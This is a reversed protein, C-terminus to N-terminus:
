KVINHHNRGYMLMFQGYTYIHGKGRSGGEQRMGDRQTIVSCWIQTRQIMCCIEVPQRIKCITICIDLYKQFWSVAKCVVTFHWRVGKLVDVILYFFSLSFSLFYIPLIPLSTSFNSDKNTAPLFTLYYLWQPFCTTM